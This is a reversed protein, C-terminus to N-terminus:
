KLPKQFNQKQVFTSLVHNTCLNQNINDSSMGCLLITLQTLGQTAPFVETISPHNCVYFLWPQDAMRPDIKYQITGGKHTISVWWHPFLTTDICCHEGGRM